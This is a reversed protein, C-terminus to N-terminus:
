SKSVFKVELGISIEDGVLVGGAELAANWMLGFDKRKIKAKGSVGTAALREIELRVPKTVGHMTLDGAVFGKEFRTSKFTLTPYKGVDFFESSKLNADREKDRTSVSGVEIEVEVSSKSLDESDYNFVGRIKDFGGRVKSIMMHKVTFSVSSHSPDIQYTKIMNMRFIFPCPVKGHIGARKRM